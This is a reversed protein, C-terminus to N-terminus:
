YLIVECLENIIFPLLPKDVPFISQSLEGVSQFRTISAIILRKLLIVPKNLLVFIQTM